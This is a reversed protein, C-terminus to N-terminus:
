SIRVLANLDDHVATAEQMIDALDSHRGSDQIFGAIQFDPFAFDHLVMHLHSQPYQFRDFAKPIQKADHRLMMLAEIAQAIGFPKRALLDAQMGPNHGCGISKIGKSGVPWIPLADGLFLCDLNQLLIRSRLKIWSHNFNEDAYSLPWIV